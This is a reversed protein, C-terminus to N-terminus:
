KIHKHGMKRSIIDFSLPKPSVNRILYVPDDSYPESHSFVRSSPLYTASGFKLSLHISGIINKWINYSGAMGDYGCAVRWKIL